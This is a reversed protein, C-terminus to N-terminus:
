HCARFYMLIMDGARTDENCQWITIASPDDPLGVDKGSGGIFFASRPEPLDDIIFSSTGGIYNPAFDYLFACLEYLSLGNNKRFLNLAKCLNGYYYYRGEYDKKVPIKPLEIDFQDAIIELVNFCYQFYYPVFSEPYLIAFATSDGPMDYISWEFVRQPTAKM